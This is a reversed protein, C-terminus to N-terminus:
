KCTIAAVSWGSLCSTGGGLSNYIGYGNLYLTGSKGVGYVSTSNATMSPLAIDVFEEPQTWVPVWRTYFDDGAFTLTNSDLETYSNPNYTIYRGCIWMQGNEDLMAVSYDGLSAIGNGIIKVPRGIKLTNENDGGDLFTGYTGTVENNTAADGRWTDGANSFECEDLFWPGQVTASNGHALAANRALQGDANNGWSFIRGDDRIAYGTGDSGKSHYMAVVTHDDANITTASDTLAIPMAQDVTTTTNYVGSYAGFLQSHGAFFIEGSATLFWTMHETALGGCATMVHVITRDEQGATSINLPSGVVATVEVPQDRDTTDNLGLQGDANNGWAFCRGTETIAFASCDTDGNTAMFIVAENDFLAPDIRRAFFNDTTTNDGLAGSDNQGWAYVHGDTSVAYYTRDPIALTATEMGSSVWKIKPYNAGVLNTGNTDQFSVVCPRQAYANSTGNGLIGGGTDGSAFLMGNALLYFAATDSLAYNIVKPVDFVNTCGLDNGALDTLFHAYDPDGAIANLWFTPMRFNILAGNDVYISASPYPDAGYAHSGATQHTGDYALEGFGVMQGGKTLYASKWQGHCASYNNGRGFKQLFDPLASIGATVTNYFNSMCSEARFDLYSAGTWSPVFRMPVLTITAVDAGSAENRIVLSNPHVSTDTSPSFLIIGGNAVSDPSTGVTVRGGTGATNYGADAPDKISYTQGDAPFVIQYSQGRTLTISANTTNDGFVRTNDDTDTLIATAPTETGVSYTMSRAFDERPNKIVTLSSGEPGVPIRTTSLDSDVTVLDGATTLVNPDPAPTLLGWFASDVVDPQQNTFPGTAEAIYSADQFTVIELHVYSATADYEGRFNVGRAMVEFPHDGGAAADPEITNTNDVATTVVYTTGNFHVVDDVEYATATTFIGRWQFKLKGLDITAM